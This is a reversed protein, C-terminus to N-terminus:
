SGSLKRKVRQHYESFASHEGDDNSRSVLSISSASPSDDELLSEFLAATDPSSSCELELLTLLPLALLEAVLSPPPPIEVSIARPLIYACRRSRSLQVWDRLCALVKVPGVTSPSFVVDSLMISSVNKM